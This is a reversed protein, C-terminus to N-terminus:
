AAVDQGTSRSRPSATRSPAVTVVAATADITRAVEVRGGDPRPRAPGRLRLILGDAYRRRREVAPRPPSSHGHGLVLLGLVVHAFESRGGDPQAVKDRLKSFRRTGLEHGPRDSVQQFRDGLADASILGEAVRHSLAGELDSVVNRAGRRVASHTPISLGWRDARRKGSRSSGSVPEGSRGGDLALRAAKRRFEEPYKGRRGV